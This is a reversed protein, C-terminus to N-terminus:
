GEGVAALFPGVASAVAGPRELWPFHGCGDLVEMRAHAVLTATETSARPPLPDRAGHVFLLPLTTAPLGLALTKARFHAHMSETTEAACRAGVWAIPMPPAAEPRAFYGPWVAALQEKLEDDSAEGRLSREEVEDSWAAQADTLNAQLNAEFEALVDGDAGLADLCVVGLLREPHAVALHLALHGGWSHGVLWAREIGLSDLVALADAMHSEITYPPGVRSPPVGRQTYRVVHLFGRLEAACGETYDSLGPGGHLLLAPPGSGGRRGVLLGGATRVRVDDEPM